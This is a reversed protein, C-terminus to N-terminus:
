TPRGGLVQDGIVAGAARRQGRRRLRGPGARGDGTGREVASGLMGFLLLVDILVYVAQNAPEALRPYLWPGALDILGGVV